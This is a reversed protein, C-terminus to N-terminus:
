ERPRSRRAAMAIADVTGAAAVWPAGVLLPDMWQHKLDARDVRNGAILLLWHATRAESYKAYAHRRIAGSLGQTSL